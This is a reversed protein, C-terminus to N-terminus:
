RYMLETGIRPVATSDDWTFGREDMHDLELYGAPLICIWRENVLSGTPYGWECLRDEPNPQHRWEFHHRQLARAELAHARTGIVGHRPCRVEYIQEIEINDLTPM